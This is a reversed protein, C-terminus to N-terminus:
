FLAKLSNKPVGETGNSNAPGEIGKSYGRGTFDGKVYEKLIIWIQGSRPVGRSFRRGLPVEAKEGLSAQQIRGWAGTCNNAAMQWVGVRLHKNEQKDEVRRM